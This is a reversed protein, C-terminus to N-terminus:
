NYNQKQKFYDAGNVSYFHVFDSMTQKTKLYERFYFKKSPSTLYFYALPFSVQFLNQM